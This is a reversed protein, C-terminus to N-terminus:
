FGVPVFRSAEAQIVRLSRDIARVVEVQRDGEGAAANIEPELLLLAATTLEGDMEMTTMRADLQIIPNIEEPLNRLQEIVRLCGVGKTHPRATVSVVMADDVVTRKIEADALQPCARKLFQMLPDDSRAVRLPMKFSQGSVTLNITATDSLTVTDM